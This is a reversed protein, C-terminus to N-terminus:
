KLLKDLESIILKEIDSQFPKLILPVKGQVLVKSEEVILSGTVKIGKAKIMFDGKNGQWSESADQIDDKYEQMMQTAFKKLRALAESQGLNHTYELKM